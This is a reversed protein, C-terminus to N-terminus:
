PGEWRDHPETRAISLSDTRSAMKMSRAQSNAKSALPQNSKTRRSEPSGSYPFLLWLACSGVKAAGLGAGSSYLFRHGIGWACISALGASHWFGPYPPVAQGGPTVTGHDRSAEVSCTRMMARGARRSYDVDCASRM